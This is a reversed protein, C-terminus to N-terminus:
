NIIIKYKNLKICWLYINQLLLIIVGRRRKCRRSLRVNVNEVNARVAILGSITLSKKRSNTAIYSINLSNRKTLDYFATTATQKRAAQESNIHANISGM